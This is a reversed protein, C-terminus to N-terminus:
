DPDGRSPNRDSVRHPFEPYCASVVELIKDVLRCADPIVSPLERAVPRPIRHMRHLPNGCTEYVSDRVAGWHGHSFTSTWSYYCDYESKVGAEQSIKRLNANAWHGLEIDLFEEWIDEGMLNELTVMDVYCPRKELENLKLYTLKAQGAGFVRYSMWLDCEDKFKLYSLTIFCELITRLAMRGIISCGADNELLERLINVSYYATGFVTDHRPDVGSTTTTYHEHDVLLGHIQNLQYLTTIPPAAVHPPVKELPYCKTDSLCQSWFKSPWGDQTPNLTEIVGESSRIFPRVHRMDGYEPYYTLEKVFQQPLQLMGANLLFLLRVWRCHTAQESQHFLTHAIAVGLPHWDSESPQQQIAEQWHQRAPLDQLLLLPRLVEGGQERSGLFQLVPGLVDPPLNALGSLTVDFVPCTDRTPLVFSALDRIIRFSRNRPLISFILAAWLMEPLRDNMWSTPKMNPIRRLPPILTKREREHDALGSRKIGGHKGQHKKGKKHSM